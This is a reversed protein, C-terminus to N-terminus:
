RKRRVLVVLLAGCSLLATSPEPVVSTIFGLDDIILRGDLADGAPNFHVSTIAFGTPATFGFFTDDGGLSSLINSTVPSNSGDSFFATITVDQPYGNSNRSLLTFGIQTVAELALGNTISGFTLTANDDASDSASLLLARGSLVNASTTTQINFGPTHSINLTKTAGAYSAELTSGAENAGLDFHIVGGFGATNAALVATTFTAVDDPAVTASSDTNGGTAPDYIGNTTVVVAHSHVSAAFTVALAVAAISVGRSSAVMARGHCTLPDQKM